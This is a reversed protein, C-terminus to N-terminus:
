DGSTGGLAGTTDTNILDVSTWGTTADLQDQLQSNVYTNTIQSTTHSITTNTLITNTQSPSYHPGIQEGLERYKGQFGREMYVGMAILAAIFIGLLYVYELAVQGRRM